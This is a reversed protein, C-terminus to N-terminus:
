AVRRDPDRAPMTPTTAPTPTTGTPHPRVGGPARDIASRSSHITGDPRTWTVTRDPTMSLTWGGEHALHHHKSCVPVLNSIDTPGQFRWFIVHHIHCHEFGVNCGDGVCTAHMARLRRRQARNATRTSRGLDTIEGHGGLVYPIIDADCCMRREESIPVAIGDYTECISNEHLGDTLTALDILVGIEPTRLDPIPASGGADVSGDGNKGCGNEGCGNEGCDHDSCGRDHPRTTGHSRTDVTSTRTTVARDIGNLFSDVELQDWPVGANGDIKRHRRLMDALAKNLKAGRMPDLEVHTHMMGTDRNIWHRIKSAARQRLLEDAETDGGTRRDREATLFRVLDRCGTLFEEVRQLRAAGLLRDQEAIFASRIEDDLRALVSAVADVHASSISGAALAAEFEPMADCAPVRKNIIVSEKSPRLGEDCLLSEAPEAQGVAALMRTRRACAVNISDLWSQVERARHVIAAVEDRDAVDPETALLLAVAASVSKTTMATTRDNSLDLTIPSTPLVFTGYVLDIHLMLKYNNPLCIVVLM